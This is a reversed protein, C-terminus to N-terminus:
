KKTVQDADQQLLDVSRNGACEDSCFVEGGVVIAFKLLWGANCVSCKCYDSPEEPPVYEYPSPRKPM